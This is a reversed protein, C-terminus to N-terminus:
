EQYSSQKWGGYSEEELSRDDVEKPTFTLGVRIEGCFEEDKVVNYSTPPISREEFLAELPIKAEGVFDDNSGSDSDMIKISLESVGSSLNFVFNENWEPESGMGSAVSSKQEQTRCTIVVYPDMKCLFDSNDLGKAAIVLVGLSGRKM